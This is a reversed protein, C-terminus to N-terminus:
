RFASPQTARGAMLHAAALDHFSHLQRALFRVVAVPKTQHHRSWPGDRQSAGAGYAKPLLAALQVAILSSGKLSLHRKIVEVAANKPLVALRGAEEWPDLGLRALTSLVSVEM